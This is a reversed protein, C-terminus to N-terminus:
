YHSELSPTKTIIATDSKPYRSTNYAYFGTRIRNYAQVQKDTLLAGSHEARLRTCDLHYWRPHENTGINVLHWYHTGDTAGPTQQIDMHQIGLRTLFAKTAAFYNFCDGSGTVFLAEYAARVWDSKDSDSVYAIEEHVYNYIARCQAEKSMGPTIIQAIIRDLEAYLKEETIQNSYIHIVTSATASNGSADTATYRVTYDGPLNPNVASADVTVTIEGSCNDRLTLGKRYALSEGVYASLEPVTVFVPAQEDTEIVTLISHYVKSTNKSSDTVQFYVDYDGIDTLRPQGDVFKATYDSAEEISLIFDEARPKLPNEEAALLDLPYYVHGPVVVPATTDRVTLKLIYDKGGGTMPIKYKGVRETCTEDVGAAYAADAVGLVKSPIPLGSGAEVTYSVSQACGSLTAAGCCLMAVALGVSLGRRILRGAGTQNITKINTM